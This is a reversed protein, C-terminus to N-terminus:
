HGIEFEIRIEFTDELHSAFIRGNMKLVLEKAISLGLGTSNGSRAKDIKYFRDFVRNIDVAESHTYDNRFQFIATHDMKLLRIQIQSQGYELGNKIINQLVRKLAEENCVINIPEEAIQIDPEINKEKFDDYFSFITDYFIKNVNCPSLELNYNNNQLRTFTFLEDLMEKLSKIRNAIIKTYHEKESSSDSEALLQFYGDLSTLPTRIDHSLNTIIEKLSADKNQYEVTQKKQNELLHNISQTLITIDKSPLNSTVIMNSNHKSIFAMQRCINKIQRRYSALLVICILAAILALATIIIM